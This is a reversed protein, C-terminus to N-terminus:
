LLQQNCKLHGVTDSQRRKKKENQVPEVSDETGVHETLSFCEM